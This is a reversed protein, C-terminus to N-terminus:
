KILKGWIHFAGLYTSKLPNEKCYKILAYKTGDTSFEQIPTNAMESWGSIWGMVWSTQAQCNIHLKNRDCAALFQGCSIHGIVWMQKESFANTYPLLLLTFCIVSVMNRM